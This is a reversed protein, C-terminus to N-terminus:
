AAARRYGLIWQDIQSEREERKHGAYSPPAGVKKAIADRVSQGMLTERGTTCLYPILFDGLNDIATGRASDDLVVAEVRPMLQCLMFQELQQSCLQKWLQKALPNAEAYRDMIERRRRGALYVSHDDSQDTYFDFQLAREVFEEFSGIEGPTSKTALAM